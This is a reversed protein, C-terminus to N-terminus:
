RVMEFLCTLLIWVALVVYVGILTDLIVKVTTVLKSMLKVYFGGEIIGCLGADFLQGSIVLPMTQSM